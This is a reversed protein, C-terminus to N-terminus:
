NLSYLYTGQEVHGLMDQVINELGPEDSLYERKLMNKLDDHLKSLFSLVTKKDFTVVPQTTELTSATIGFPVRGKCGLYSEVFRDVGEVLDDHLEDLTKHKSFDRAAWHFLKIQTLASVLMALDKEADDDILHVVSM